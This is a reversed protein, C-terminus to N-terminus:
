TLDVPASLTVKRFRGMCQMRVKDVAFVVGDQRFNVLSAECYFTGLFVISRAASSAASSAVDLASAASGASRV